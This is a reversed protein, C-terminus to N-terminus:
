PWQTPRGCAQQNLDHHIEELRANIAAWESRNKEAAALAENAVAEAQKRHARLLRYERWTLVAFAIAAGAVAYALVEAV